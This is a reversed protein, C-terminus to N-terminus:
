GLAVILNNLAATLRGDPKELEDMISFHNCPEAAAAHEAPRSRRPGSSLRAVAAAIGAVRRHRVGGDGAGQAKGSAPDPENPRPRARRGSQAQRESLEAPVARRRLHRQDRARCRGRRAAAGVRHIRRGGVLGVRHAQGRRLRPTPGEKRSLTASRACHTEAVLETLTVDPCLTYGIMATDFGHGAPGAMMCPFIDKSNRQWCGGHIFVSCRRTRSAARPVRRRPNRRRAPRLRSRAAGSQEQADRRQARGAATAVSPPTPCRPTTTTPPM